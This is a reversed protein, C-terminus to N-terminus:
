GRFLLAELVRTSLGERNVEGRRNRQVLSHWPAWEAPGASGPLGSGSPEPAQTGGAPPVSFEVESGALSAVTVGSVSSQNEEGWGRLPGMLTGHRM